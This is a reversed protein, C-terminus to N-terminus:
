AFDVLKWLCVGSLRLSDKLRADQHSEEAPQIAGVEAVIFFGSGKIVKKATDTFRVIPVLHVFREFAHCFSVLAKSIAREVEAIM